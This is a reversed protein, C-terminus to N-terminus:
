LQGGAATVHLQLSWSGDPPSYSFMSVLGPTFRSSSGDDTATGETESTIYCGSGHGSTWGPLVGQAVAAASDGQLTISVQQNVSVALHMPASLTATEATELVWADSRIDYLEVASGACSATAASSSPMGMRSLADTITVQMDCLSDQQCQQLCNGSLVARSITGAALATGLVAKLPVTSSPITIVTAQPLVTDQRPQDAWINPEVQKIMSLQPGGDPGSDCPIETWSLGEPASTAAQPAQM